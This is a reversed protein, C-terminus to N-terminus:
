LEEIRLIGWKVLLRDINLLLIQVLLVVWVPTYIYLLFISRKAFPVDQICAPIPALVYNIRNNQHSKCNSCVAIKAPNRPHITLPMESFTFHFSYIITDDRVLWKTSHPYLLRTCYSCPICPFQAYDDEYLSRLIKHLTDSPRWYLQIDINDNVTAELPLSCTTSNVIAFHSDDVSFTMENADLYVIDIIQSM